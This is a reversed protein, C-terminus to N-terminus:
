EGHSAHARARRARKAISMGAEELLMAAMAEQQLEKRLTDDAGGAFADQERPMVVDDVFRRIRDRCQEVRPTLSFAM